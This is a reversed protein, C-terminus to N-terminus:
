VIRVTLKQGLRCHGPISCSLYLNDGRSLDSTPLVSYSAVQPGVLREVSGFDCDRLAEATQMNVVDHPPVSLWYLSVNSGVRVDVKDSEMSLGWHIADRDQCLSSPGFGILTFLAMERVFCWLSKGFGTAM